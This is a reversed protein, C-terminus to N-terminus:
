MFFNRIISITTSALETMSKVSLASAARIPPPRLMPRWFLVM